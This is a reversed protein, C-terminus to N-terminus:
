RHPARGRLAILGVYRSRDRVGRLSAFGAVLDHRFRRNPRALVATAFRERTSGRESAILQLADPHVAGLEQQVLRLAAAFTGSVHWQRALELADRVRRTDQSMRAIDSMGNLPPRASGGIAHITAHVLRAPADLIPVDVTAIRLSARRALVDVPRVGLALGQSLNRHVDIEFHQDAVTTSKGFERDWLPVFPRFTRSFGNAELVTVLQEARDPAAYLDLDGYQRWTPDPYDCFAHATGKLVVIGHNGESQLLRLLVADIELQVLAVAAHATAVAEFQEGTLRLDGSKAAALALGAMRNDRVDDAIREVTTADFPPRGDHGIGFTAVHRLHAPTM